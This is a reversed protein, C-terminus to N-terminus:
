VAGSLVPVKWTTTVLVASGLALAVAVIVTRLAPNRGAASM